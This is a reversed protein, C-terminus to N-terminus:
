MTIAMLFGCFVLTNAPSDLTVLNAYEDSHHCANHQQLMIVNTCTHSIRRGTNLRAHFGPRGIRLQHSGGLGHRPDHSQMSSRITINWMQSHASVLQCRKVCGGSNTRTNCCTYCRVQAIRKWPTRIWARPTNGYELRTGYAASPIQGLKPAHMDLRACRLTHEFLATLDVLSLGM